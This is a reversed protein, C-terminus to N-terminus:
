IPWCKWEFRKMTGEVKTPLFMTHGTTFTMTHNERWIKHSAMQKWLLQHYSFSLTVLAFEGNILMRKSAVLTGWSSLLDNQNALCWIQWLYLKWADKNCQMCPLIWFHHVEPIYHMQPGSFTSGETPCNEFCPWRMENRDCCAVHDRVGGCADIYHLYMADRTHLYMACASCKQGWLFIYKKKEFSYIVAIIM